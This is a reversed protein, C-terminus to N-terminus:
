TVGGTTDEVGANTQADDDLPEAFTRKHLAEVRVALVFDDGGDVFGIPTVVYNADREYGRLFNAFETQIDALSRARIFDIKQAM